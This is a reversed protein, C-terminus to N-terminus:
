TIKGEGIIESMDNDDPCQVQEEEFYQLQFM